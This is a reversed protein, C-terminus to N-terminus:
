YNSDFYSMIVLFVSGNTIFLLYDTDLIYIIGSYSGGRNYSVRRHPRSLKDGIKLEYGYNEIFRSVNWRWMLQITKFINEIIIYTLSTVKLWNKKTIITGMRSRTDAGIIVGKKFLSFYYNWNNLFQYSRNFSKM